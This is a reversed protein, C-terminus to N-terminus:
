VPGASNKSSKGIAMTGSTARDMYLDSVGKGCGVLIFAKHEAPSM